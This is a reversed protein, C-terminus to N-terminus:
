LTGTPDNFLVPMVIKSLDKGANDKLVTWISIKMNLDRLSPLTEREGQVEVIKVSSSAQSGM